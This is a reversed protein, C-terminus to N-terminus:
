NVGELETIFYGCHGGGGERVPLALLDHGWEGGGWPFNKNAKQCSLLNINLMCSYTKSIHWHKNKLSM